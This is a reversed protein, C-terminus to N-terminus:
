IGTCTELVIHEDDPPWFQIICCRTDDCRYTAMGRVPQSFVRRRREVQASSPWRCLTIIGSATYYLKSRRIILVYHEFCKSAGWFFWVLDVVIYGVSPIRLSVSCSSAVWRRCLRCYGVFLSPIGSHVVLCFVPCVGLPVSLVCRICLCSLVVVNRGVSLWGLMRNVLSSISRSFMPRCYLRCLGEAVLQVLSAMLVSCAMLSGSSESWSVNWMMTAFFSLCILLLLGLLGMCLLCVCM